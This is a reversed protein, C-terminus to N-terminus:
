QGCLEECPPVGTFQLSAVRHFDAAHHGACAIRFDAFAFSAAMSGM